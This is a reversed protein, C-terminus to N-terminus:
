DRRLSLRSRSQRRHIAGSKFSKGSPLKLTIPWASILPMSADDSSAATFGLRAFSAQPEDDGQKPPKIDGPNKAISPVGCDQIDQKSSLSTFHGFFPEQPLRVPRFPGLEDSLNAHVELGDTTEVLVPNVLTYAKKGLNIVAMSTYDQNFTITDSVTKAMKDAALLRKIKAKATPNPVLALTKSVHKIAHQKGREIAALQQETYASM